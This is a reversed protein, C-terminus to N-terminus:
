TDPGAWCAANTRTACATADVGPTTPAVRGSNMGLRAGPSGPVASALTYGFPDGCSAEVEFRSCVTRSRTTGAASRPVPTCTRTPPWVAIKSSKAPTRERLSGSKRATTMPSLKRRSIVTNRLRTIGATAATIFRSEAAAANPTTVRTNWSPTPEESSPISLVPGISANTGTNM